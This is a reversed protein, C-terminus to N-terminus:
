MNSFTFLAPSTRYTLTTPRTLMSGRNSMITTCTNCSLNFLFLKKKKKEFNKPLTCLPSTKETMVTNTPLQGLMSYM